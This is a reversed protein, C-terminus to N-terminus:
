ESVGYRHLDNGHANIWAKAREMEPCIRDVLRWFRVSHNMEILHAVEHAALYDLVFPPALILRWSFSLVGDSNCSGWRSSQDRVSIRRFKVGLADAHRRVAVTLDRRAERKFYDKVRRSTHAADGTVCLMNTGDDGCECWVTGRMRPRHVIRHAEGRLPVMAGEMFDIGGPLKRLREALWAGHRQAFAKADSLSGRLPMSLIAERRTAHIRLTYRRARRHRRVTIQYTEGNAEVAIVQPAPGSAPRRPRKIAGIGRLLPLWGLGPRERSM